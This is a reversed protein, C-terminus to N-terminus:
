AIEFSFALAEDIDQLGMLLMLLRDVGLAIGAADPCDALAALFREDIPYVPLGRRQRDALDAQFRARQEVPDVLESFGNALEVGCVYVEVREAIAPDTPSKRALSGLRAPWGQLVVIRDDPMTPEVRDVFARVLLDAATEDPLAPYDAAAATALLAHDDTEAADFGCAKQIEVCFDWRTPDSHLATQVAAPLPSHAEIAAGAARVLDVTDDTIAQFDAATRYWELMTFEPNHWAGREGSRFSKGLRYLREIGVSLLRKCHYEPSTVLYRQVPRGGMGERLTVAVADLHPELGPSTAIAPTEVELFDHAAFFDRIAKNLVARLRLSRLRLGDTAAFRQADNM